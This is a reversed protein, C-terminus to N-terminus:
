HADHAHPAATSPPPDVGVADEVVNAIAAPLMPHTTVAAPNAHPDVDERVGDDAALATALETSKPGLKFARRLMTKHAMSEFDTRWVGTVEGTRNSRPAYKDRYDQMDAHSMPDTLVYGGGKILLRAYYSVPKGRPGADYPTHRLRDGDQNYELSWEDESYRTRASAGTVLGSRYALDLYGQYGIILQARFGGQGGNANRDWFPLPWAHGLVAPRLGLQACTMLSGLVSLADCDALKPELRLCTLADRVLQRAENGRPMALQFQEAMSKIQEELTKPKKKEAGVGGDGGRDPSRRASTQDPRRASVREGLDRGM